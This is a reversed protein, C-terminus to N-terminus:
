LLAESNTSFYIDEQQSLKKLLNEFETWRENTNIEYSHTWIFLVQKKIPKLNIFEDIVKDFDKEFMRLSPQYDLLNSPIDFSHTSTVGRGFKINNEKMALFLDDDRVGYPSIFGKVKQNFCTEINKIDKKIEECKQEHTLKEIHPHSYSHSAVEHGKYLIKMEDMTLHYVEKEEFYWKDDHNAKGTNINFTAKLGYKNLLEVVKIDNNIGDDFSFTVAKLCSNPYKEEM